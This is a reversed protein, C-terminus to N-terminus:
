TSPETSLALRRCAFQLVEQASVGSRTHWENIDLTNECLIVLGAKRLLSRMSEASFFNIHEHWHIKRHAGSFPPGENGRQIKELPVEVYLVTELGMFPLIADLTNSPYPIHELVHSLVILDYPTEEAPVDSTSVADAISERGSPDFIHLLSRSDAFPTNVGTDGGWDLVAIGSAPLLPELFEEVRPIHSVGGILTKNRDSYGAEYFDRTKEYLEGRYDSYLRTMETESFRYDVFLHGCQRCMLSKCLAYAIGHPINTLGTHEDITLPPLDMARHSIFPMWMAPSGEVDLSDCTLCSEVTTGM